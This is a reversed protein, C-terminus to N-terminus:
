NEILELGKRMSKYFSVESFYDEYVKKARHRMAALDEKSLKNILAVVDDLNNNDINYGISHRQVLTCTDFSINNIIPLGAQLYDISKMTLGVCVSDKMINLGFHCRDFVDQKEQPNYIKGYYEVRAGILKVQMLLEQRKEGDGIIHLTVPKVKNISKIIKLIKTIDIINNISGLYALHIEDDDTKIKSEVDTAKKALYITQTRMGIIVKNLVKQYLDCETVILDAYRLYKDRLAGWFIIPPLKKIKGFPMTEPWLDIIDFILKIKKNKLKYQGAFKASSNPPVVVYLLEPKIKEVIKFADKAFIYHSRLRQISLNKYYPETEIFVYGKKHDKRVIKNIHKFNSQVVTVDMDNKVLFEYVLDIREEYTEFCNVIVARKM